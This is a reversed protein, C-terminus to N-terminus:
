PVRAMKSRDGEVVDAVASGTRVLPIRAHVPSLRWVSLHSGVGESAM